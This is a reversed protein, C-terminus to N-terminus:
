TQMPSPVTLSLITSFPQPSSPARHSVRGCRPALRTISNTLTPHQQYSYSAKRGRLYAVLWIVLNHSLRSCHIMEILLSYSVTDLAKSIDVAIAIARNPDKRQNFGSVVRASIPLLASANYHRPKFCHQSPRTGLAEVISPLILRELIKVALCLLSILRYSRGQEQPKGAKLIPIIISNKWIAPIDIGSVSLNFLETLFALDQAGLHRLHLVTLGDPGQATSWGAKLIAAAVGREDFPRYSPDM